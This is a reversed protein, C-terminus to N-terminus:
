VPATSGYWGGACMWPARLGAVGQGATQPCRLTIHVIEAPANIRLPLWTGVGNSVVLHSNGRTYLGSWYRFLVSGLGYRQNLMFQGGHTHGALTLPLGVSAAADFAHPHHALLLPFAQPQCQKLLLRLQEATVHDFRGGLSRAMGMMWKLGLIQMPHGRVFAVATEDQLLKLGAARIRRGFEGGDDALDHNGEVMWLGGPAEIAQMMAIAEPLYSLSHDVLDGTMVVLDCRLRNTRAVIDRLLDGCMLRGVHVDTLHAITAGDLARPLSPISLTFRRVRLNDLRALAMGGLGTSILPPALLAAGLFERRTLAHAALPNAAPAAAERRSHKTMRRVGWIFIGATVLLLLTALAIYHWIMVTLLLIKPVHSAWEIRAITFVMATLQVGLFVSILVRWARRRTLRLAAQWLALDVVIM